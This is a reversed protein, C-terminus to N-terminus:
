TLSTKSDLEMKDLFTVYPQRHDPERTSLPLSPLPYPLFFHFRAHLSFSLISFFRPPPLEVKVGWEYSM